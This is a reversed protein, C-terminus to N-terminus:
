SSVETLVDGVHFRTAKNLVHKRDPSNAGSEDGQSTAVIAALLLASLFFRRMTMEQADRSRIRQGPLAAELRALVM